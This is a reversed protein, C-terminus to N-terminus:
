GAGLVASLLSVLMFIGGNNVLFLLPWLFLPHMGAFRMHSYDRRM